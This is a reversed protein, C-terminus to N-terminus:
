NSFSILISDDWPWPNLKIWLYSHYSIINKKFSRKNAISLQEIMWIVCIPWMCCFCDSPLINKKYFTSTSTEFRCTESSLLIGIFFHSVCVKLAGCRSCKYRGRALKQLQQDTFNRDYLVRRHDIEDRSIVSEESSESRQKDLQLDGEKCRIASLDHIESQQYCVSSISNAYPVASCDEYAANGMYNLMEKNGQLHRNYFTLFSLSSPKHGRRSYNLSITVWRPTQFWKSTLLLHIGQKDFVLCYPPSHFIVKKWTWFTPWSNM